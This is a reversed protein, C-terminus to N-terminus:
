WLETRTRFDVSQIVREIDIVSKTGLLTIELRASNDSAFVYASTKNPSISYYEGHSNTGEVGNTYHAYTRGATGQSFDYDVNAVDVTFNSRVTEYSLCSAMLRTYNSLQLTNTITGGSDCPISLKVVGGLSIEKYPSDPAPRNSFYGFLGIGLIVIALWAYGLIKSTRSYGDKDLKPSKKHQTMLLGKELSGLFFLVAM